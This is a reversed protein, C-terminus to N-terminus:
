TSSKGLRSGAATFARDGVTVLRTTPIDTRPLTNRVVVTFANNVSTWMM